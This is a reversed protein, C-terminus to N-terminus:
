WGQWVFTHFAIIFVFTSTACGKQKLLTFVAPTKYTIYHFWVHFPTIGDHSGENCMNKNQAHTNTHVNESGLIRRAYVYVEKLGRRRQKPLSCISPSTSSRRHFCAIVYHLDSFLFEVIRRKQPSHTHAAKWWLGAPLSIVLFNVSGLPLDYLGVQLLSIWFGYLLCGVIIRLAINHLALHVSDLYIYRPCLPQNTFLIEIYWFEPRLHM